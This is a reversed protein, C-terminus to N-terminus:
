ELIRVVGASADVHLRTRDKIATLDGKIHGIVPVGCERAVQALHHSPQGPSVVATVLTLISHWDAYHFAQEFPLVLIDEPGLADLLAPDSLDAVHRALGTAESAGIGQGILGDIGAPPSDATNATGATPASSAAFGLTQPATLRRRRQTERKRRAILERFSITAGATVFRELDEKCLILVEEAHELLGEDRLRQGVHWILEREWLMGVALEHRDNLAQGWYRAWRLMKDFRPIDSPAREALKGRLAQEAEDRKVRSETQATEVNKSVGRLACRVTHMLATTDSGATWFPPRDQWSLPTKGFRWCFADFNMLFECSPHNNRLDPLVADLGLADFATRVEAEHIANGLQQLGRTVRFTYSNMGGGILPGTEFKADVKKVFDSLLMDCMWGLWQPGSWAFSNLDQDQDRIRLMTPILEAASTTDQIATLATRSIDALEAPYRDWREQYGAANQDLWAEYESPNDFYDAFMPPRGARWYRYGHFNREETCFVGLVVDDPQHRSWMEADSLDAYLPTMMGAPLDTRLPVIFEARQWTKTRDEDALRHPFFPPLATLPRAQVVWLGNETFAFEIDLRSSFREDLGLSVESLATICQDTLAPQNSAAGDLVHCQLGGSAAVLSSSKSAIDRDIVVGTDWEVRFSDGVGSGSLLDIAVGPTAHVVFQWPNGTDPNATYIVGSSITRVVRQLMVAMGDVRPEIGMRKLYRLARPSWASSWCQLIRRECQVLDNVCLWSEFVGAFSATESDEYPASSRVALGCSNRELLHVAVETLEEKVVDPLGAMLLADSLERHRDALCNSELSDFSCLYERVRVDLGSAKLTCRLAACDLVITEPVRVGHAQVRALNRAKGGVQDISTAASLATFYTMADTRIM